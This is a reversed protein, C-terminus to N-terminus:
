KEEKITAQSNQDKVRKYLIVKGCEVAFGTSIQKQKRIQFPIKLQHCM